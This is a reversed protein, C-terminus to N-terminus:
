RPRPPTTNEVAEDDTVSEEDAVPEQVRFTVEGNELDIVTVTYGGIKLVDGIALEIEHLAMAWRRTVMFDFHSLAAAVIAVARSSSLREIGRKVLM